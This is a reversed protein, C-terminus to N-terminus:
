LTRDRTEQQDVRTVLESLTVESLTGLVVDARSLDLGATITNPIAVCRLGAQKAATIGHPSDEIAFAEAAAVGLCELVALYLDPAPKVNAVDDRCRLCHFRDLIGLRALHGKVWGTTSSSAVGLKLGLTRAEELHQLVGPLLDKAQVYETRRGIRRDLVEQPLPRGILEELHRQPHFGITTSGVIEVWREFPLQEGHEEYVEVWSRFVPEETDLILGDFDFIVARIM